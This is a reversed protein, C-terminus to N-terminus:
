KSVVKRTTGDSYQIINLGKQSKCARHGQLDYYVGNKLLSTDFIMSEIASPESGDYNLWETGTFFQPVWGKEKATAVQTTTMVNGEGENFIICLFIYNPYKIPLSEVLADMFKDKIQNKHCYFSTLVTNSVDLTTLQNNGCTLSSLATNNSVDLTTLQNNDCYLSELSTNSSLDLTTLQNNYCFLSSLATNNSVDLTTLQNNDCYLNTLATNNSVDLTTLQNNSCTLNSLATNNSVDLSSLQNDSCDLHKLATFYEIGKLSTINCQWVNIINIEAIEEETIKGDSGYSHKLLYNRFNADPFNTGNIAISSHYDQSTDELPIAPIFEDANKLVTKMYVGNNCTYIISVYYAKSILFNSGLNTLKAIGSSGSGIMLQPATDSSFINNFATDYAFVTQVIMNQSSNNNLLLEQEEKLVGNYYGSSFSGLYVFIENNIYGNNPLSSADDLSISTGFTNADKVVAKHYLKGDNMNLYVINFFWGRYTLSGYNSRSIQYSKSSNSNLSLNSNIESFFIENSETDVAYVNFLRINSESYNRVSLTVDEYAGTSTWSWTVVSIKDNLNQGILMISSQMFAILLLLKKM